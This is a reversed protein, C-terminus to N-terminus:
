LIESNTLAVGEVFVGKGDLKEISLCVCVLVCVCVKGTMYPAYYPMPCVRGDVVSAFM